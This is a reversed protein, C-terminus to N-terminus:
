SKVEWTEKIYMCGCGKFLSISLTLMVPTSFALLSIYMTLIAKLLGQPQLGLVPLKAM